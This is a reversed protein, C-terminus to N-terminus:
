SLCPHIQFIRVQHSKNRTPIAYEMSLIWRWWTEIPGRWKIIKLSYFAHCWVNCHQIARVCSLPIICVFIYSIIDTLFQFQMLRYVHLHLELSNLEFTQYIFVHLMDRHKYSIYKSPTHKSLIRNHFNCLWVERPTIWPIYLNVDTETEIVTQSKDDIGHLDM